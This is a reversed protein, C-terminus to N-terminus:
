AAPIKNGTIKFAKLFAGLLIFRGGILFIAAALLKCL